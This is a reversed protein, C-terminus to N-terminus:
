LSSGQKFFPSLRFFTEALFDAARVDESFVLKESVSGLIFFTKEESFFESKGGLWFFVFFTEEESFLESEENLLFFALGFDDSSEEEISEEGLFFVALEPASRLVTRRLPTSSRGGSKLTWVSM